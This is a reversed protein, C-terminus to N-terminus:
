VHARGIQSGVPVNSVATPNGSSDWGMVKNIREALTPIETLAPTGTEIDKLKLSRDMQDQLQQALMVNHDFADEVDEPLYPGQNRLDTTQTLPRIRRILLTWGTTLNGATLWAQSNNVLTITRTGTTGEGIVTYDTTLSLTTIAFTSPNMVKVVLDSEVFIFFSYDYVSLASTGTYTNRSTAATLTM